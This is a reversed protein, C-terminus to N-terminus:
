RPTENLEILEGTGPERQALVAAVAGGPPTTFGRPSVLTGLVMATRSSRRLVGAVASIEAREQAPVTGLAVAAEDAARLHDDALTRAESLVAELAAEAATVRETAVRVAADATAAAAATAALDRENQRDQLADRANDLAGRLRTARADLEEARRHNAALTEAWQELVPIAARLREPDGPPVAHERFADAAAGQWTAAHRTASRIGSDAASLADVAARLQAVVEGVADVSGPTPDFGLGRYTM